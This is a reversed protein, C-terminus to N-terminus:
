ATDAAAICLMAAGLLAWALREAKVLVARTFVLGAVAFELGLYYAYDVWVPREAAASTVTAWAYAAVGLSVVVFAVFVPRPMVIARHPSSPTQDLDPRDPGM